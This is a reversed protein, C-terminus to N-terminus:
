AESFAKQAAGLHIKGDAQVFYPVIDIANAGTSLTISTGGAVFYRDDAHSLTGGGTGDQIFVFIGSQGAVEDTPDQLTCNNSNSVTLIFNTYRSMDPTYNGSAAETVTNPVVGQSFTIAAANGGDSTISDLAIDGVNTINADNFSTAGLTNSAATSTLGQSLTVVGDSAIAIADTDSASGINGADPIVINGGTTMLGGGTYTGSVDLNANIDALTANLEIEDTANIDLVTASPANIYQSADNFQLQMTSNLLLGTDAVHTLTVDTDAGFGLVAADSLLTLDDGVTLDTAVKVTTDDDLTLVTTGDYQKFILDDSDVGLQIVQAGATGDMDLTLQLTGGDKFEINGGAADLVVDAGSDITIDASTSGNGITIAADGVSINDAAVSSAAAPTAWSIDTGDSTLIYNASGVALAAPDGNSDGYIIKGRALGAMKALTVANDQIDATEITDNPFLPVQSFTVVGSSSIAMADTDGASGINGDNAVKIGGSFLSADDATIAGVRISAYDDIDVNGTTTGAEDNTNAFVFIDASEDWLIARNAINSSSGNGRTFIIGLDNTPSATTGQALKILPDTVTLNTTSITTTSGSVTLDGSVTLNDTIAVNGDTVELANQGDTGIIVLKEDSADWLMHDGSTASYFTVDVGSGASGFVTAGFTNGAATSTIGNAATIGGGDAITIANDGDTYAITATQVEGSVLANGSIDVAGNIDITTANIEIETDSVLDLVGDASQHIYTGSDGFQLQRSSNLLVGTDAVHTLTVDQDDGLNLIAGDALFLDSFQLSSTGLYAGDSADPAFGTTATIVTGQVTSAGTITGSIDVNGNMDITTANIEIETDSVLDLVGDASQYIYTGSDGFQLQDTSSLLLGTDAVHTLTVDQDAGFGIVAGDALYLDSWELSTTGLAAGDSADPVVATTATITTAQLTSAGTITGSIEVAGNIDITTANIEIETDSVLDLVGDASQYIYTGSDGFQLQRSSNLLLGTDAVHTLTVDTDAGFGLVSADSKLTLDDGVTADASMEVLPTTIEVETDADIDLQGDTSSSVSLASDRFTLKIAGNLLLATDAVHTLTVDNDSGFGLVASDSDLKLDNSVTVATSANLDITAEGDIRLVGDSSQQIYSASDGFQLQRTSNLLLGTDAVHTLTVDNDAGFGLVAADSQLKLDDDVFLDVVSLTSFADVVAGGAGAGDTYLMKTQGAKITVNSGSGSTITIDQSGSTANEIVWVKSMTYTGASGASITITCTSDLTGTYKLYFSRGEDTAGDAIVTAHTDANTTIAETGYSFAEAILELNTNTTNGWTGTQEGTGIEELRLDNTYVSAM